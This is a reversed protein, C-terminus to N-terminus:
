APARRATGKVCERGVQNFAERHRSGAIPWAAPWSRAVSPAAPATARATARHSGARPGASERASGRPHSIGLLLACLHSRARSRGAATGAVPRDHWCSGFPHGSDDLTQSSEPCGAGVHGRGTVIRWGGHPPSRTCRAAPSTLGDGTAVPLDRAAWDSWSGPYLRADGIGADALRLLTVCASVGSGCYAIVPRPDDVLWDPMPSTAPANHAGPVHGPSRISPSTTAGTASPRARTSSWRRVARTAALVTEHDALDDTLPAGAEIDGPPIVPVGTELDGAWAALGGDLVAVERKGIHRLLWWLRAAGGTMDQDYAVVTGARTIGARRAAAAFASPEPLPHRGRGNPGDFAPGSLDDGLDMFAAGPIHGQAYLARGAGADGLEWRCDVM